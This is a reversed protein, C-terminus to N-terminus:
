HDGETFHENRISAYIRYGILATFIVVMSGLADGTAMAGWNVLSTSLSEYEYFPSIGEAHYFFQHLSASLLSQTVVIWGVNRLTLGALSSPIKCMDCVFRMALYSSFASAAACGITGVLSIGVLEPFYLSYTVLSGIFIAIAGHFGFVFVAITRVGAPFFPLEVGPAFNFLDRYSGMQLQWALMWVLIGLVYPTM